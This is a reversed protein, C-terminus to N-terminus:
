RQDAVEVEVVAVERVALGTVRAVVEARHESRRFVGACGSAVEEGREGQGVLDLAPQAVHRRHAVRAEIVDRLARIRDGRAACPREPEIRRAGGVRDRDGAGREVPEADSAGSTQRVPFAQGVGVDGPSDGARRQEGAAANGTGELYELTLLAEHVRHGAVELQAPLGLVQLPNGPRDQLLVVGFDM